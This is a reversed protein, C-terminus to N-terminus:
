SLRVPEANADLREKWEPLRQAAYRHGADVIRDLSRFDFLDFQEVPPTLYLDVERGLRNALELSPVLAARQLIRIINPPITSRKPRALSLLIEGIGPLRGSPLRLSMDFRPSCDVAIVRGTGLSRMVDVPLNNLLGGDALLEGHSAVPPLVGPIAISALLAQAVGGQRHIVLQASSLNTSVCFYPIWLDEIREDGFWGRAAQAARRGALLAILPFTYDVRWRGRNINALSAADHGRALQAGIVAGGSVGGVRDIPIGAEELARVVGIHAFARAGGGSLVLSAANGTLLRAIREVDTRRGARVHHHAVFPHLALWSSTGSPLMTGPPHVLVLELKGSRTSHSEPMDSLWPSPRAEGAHAVVLVRDAQRLCRSTWDRNEGSAEYLVFRYEHEQENLWRTIPDGGSRREPSPAVDSLTGPLEGPRIWLTRGHFALAGHLEAAFRETPADPAFPLVAVTKMSCAAPTSSGQLRMAVFRALALMSRPHEDVLRDFAPRRLRALETDRVAVVTASRPEGTLLALEGVHGGQGVETVVRLGGEPSEVLVRLRGTAIVYLSDAPDGARFLTEGGPLVQWELADALDDLASGELEVFLAAAAVVERADAPREM